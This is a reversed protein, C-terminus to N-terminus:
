RATVSLTTCIAATIAEAEAAPFSTARRFGLGLHSGDPLALFHAELATPKPISSKYLEGPSARELIRRAVQGSAAGSVGFFTSKVYGFLGKADLGMSKAMDTSVGVLLVEFSAGGGSAPLQLFVADLGLKAPKSLQVPAQFRIQKWNYSNFKATTPAAPKAAPKAAAKSATTGSHGCGALLLALMAMSAHTGIFTPLPIHRM